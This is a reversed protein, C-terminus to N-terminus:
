LSCGDSVAAVRGACSRVRPMASLLMKMIVSAASGDRIAGVTGHRCSQDLRRHARSINSAAPSAREIDRIGRAIACVIAILGGMRGAGGLVTPCVRPTMRGFRSTLSRWRRNVWM